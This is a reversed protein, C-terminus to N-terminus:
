LPRASWTPALSGRGWTPTTVGCKRCSVLKCLSRFVEGQQPQLDLSKRYLVAAEPFRKQNRVAEGLQFCVGAEDGMLTHYTELHQQAKEWQGLQNYAMGKLLDVLPLDPHLTLAKNLAVVAEKPQGESLRIM